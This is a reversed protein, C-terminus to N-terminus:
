YQLLPSHYKNKYYLITINIKKYFTTGTSDIRSVKAMEIIGKTLAKKVGDSGDYGILIKQVNKLNKIALFNNKQLVFFL